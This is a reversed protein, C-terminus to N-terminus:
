PQKRRTSIVHQFWCAGRTELTPQALPPATVSAFNEVYSHLYPFDTHDMVLKYTFAVDKATLPVGDHFKVGDRITYTYVLGDESRKVGTGLDFAFTGDLNLKYMTSYTLGSITYAPVLWAVGINLSDPDRTWGIRVVAPQKSTGCGSLVLSLVVLMTLVTYKVKM